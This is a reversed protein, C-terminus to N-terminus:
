GMGGQSVRTEFPSPEILGLSGFDFLTLRLVLPIARVYGTQSINCRWSTTLSYEVRRRDGDPTDFEIPENKFEMRVSPGVQDDHVYFKDIASAQSLYDYADERMRFPIAKRDGLSYGTIAVAHTGRRMRPFKNGKGCFDVLAITMLMPIHCGLYGYVNNKLLHANAPNIFFPALGLSKIAHAIQTVSLGNNPLPRTEPPVPPSHETALRTIEVPSPIHHHFIKGTGQLVSWLASTSCAAVVKDQEQFALSEVKLNVGFLNVRYTRTIPYNRRGGDDPFTKLCTRGIITKPLPKVVVFGLYGEEFREHSLTGPSGELIAEFAKDDFNESFFHLRTCCREYDKFCCVYYGAYDDMFYHDVYCKEIIMTSAGIIRFYEEFYLCHTKNEVNAIDTDAAWALIEKLTTISYPRVEYRPDSEGKPTESPNM